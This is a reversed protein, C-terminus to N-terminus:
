LILLDRRQHSVHPVIAPGCIIPIHAWLQLVAEAMPSATIYNSGM